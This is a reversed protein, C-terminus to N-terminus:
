TPCTLTLFLCPFPPNTVGTGIITAPRRSPCFAGARTQTHRAHLLRMNNGEGARKTARHMPFLTPLAILFSFLFRHVHSSHPSSRQPARGYPIPGARAHTLFHHFSFRDILLSFLPSFTCVGRQTGRGRVVRMKGRGGAWKTTRNPSPIPLFLSFFFIPFPTGPPTQTVTATTASVAGDVRMKESESGNAHRRIIFSFALLYSFFLRSVGTFDLPPTVSPSTTVCRLQGVDERMRARMEYDRNLAPHASSFIFFFLQSITCRRPTPTSKTRCSVRQQIRERQM